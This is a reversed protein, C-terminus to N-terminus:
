QMRQMADQHKMHKAKRKHMSHESKRHRMSHKKQPEMKMMAKDGSKMKMSDMTTSNKEMSMGGNNMKAGSMKGEAWATNGALALCCALLVVSIKNM